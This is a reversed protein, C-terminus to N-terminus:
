QTVGHCVNRFECFKCKYFSPNENIRAPESPSAIIREAKERLSFALKNNEDTRCSTYARGGASSVTLYHRRMGSYHMYLVAQCYYTFDWQELANKEGKDNKLKRLDNMKKEDTQKHEWVHWTQPAELIGKIAGDMHGRFMGNLDSFGFQEGDDGATHLEIGEVMRLRKAMLAEGLHGDEFRRLSAADFPLRPYQNIRYWLRRECQEGIESFGLYTRPKQKQSEAVLARDVADLTAETFNPLITM